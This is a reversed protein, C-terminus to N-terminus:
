HPEHAPGISRTPHPATPLLKAIPRAVAIISM